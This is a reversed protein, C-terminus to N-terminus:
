FLEWAKLTEKMYQRINLQYVKELMPSCLVESTKGFAEVRGQHLLLMKGSLRIALNIDHLVGIVSKNQTISWDKLFDILEVQYSLDLHNTPEDLLIIDPEQALIKALFVRQLQGGSLTSIERNCLDLLNVTRLAMEVAAKDEKSVDALIKRSRYAYRGMMVTDYVTYDFYVQNIQSLLAIKKALPKKKYTRINDGDLFITGSYNIINAMTRLLTTKGCGNPGIISLNEGTNVEFSIDHLVKHDDYGATIDQLKIM